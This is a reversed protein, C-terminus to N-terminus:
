ATVFANVRRVSIRHVTPTIVCMWAGGDVGRRVLADVPNRNPPDIGGQRRLRFKKKFIQSRFPANVAQGFM